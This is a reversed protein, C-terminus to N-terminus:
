QLYGGNEMLNDHEKWLEDLTAIRNQLPNIMDRTPKVWPRSMLAYRASDCPHDDGKSNCDETKKTDHQLAPLTRILNKCTEFFYVMPIENIGVLRGRVQDWGSIRENDAERTMLGADRMREAKSPGGDETFISPDAVTYSMKEQLPQQSLIRKVVDEVPLKLGVNTKAAGYLERYQIIAGHPYKRTNGDVPRGDSVAYWGYYFPASSGWDFAGFKLWTEPIKFPRIVHCNEGTAKFESFYSGVIASWDGELWARVLEPSGLGKLSDKYGPDNRLGIVNDDVRAPIFMRIRGTAADKIPAYGGPAPDIFYEKVAHHGIGGPNATVRVRKNKIDKQAWRCCTRMLFYGNLNPWQGIEDIGIWGYSHGNYKYFDREHELARMKLSAGNDWIWTKKQDKWIGGTQPYIEQSRAIIDDLEPLSQRILIGHWHNEHEYVGQLFDGLLFYSKGGYKAGGYLVEDCWDAEIAALQPGQQPTFAALNKAM